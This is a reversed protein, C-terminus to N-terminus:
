AQYDCCDCDGHDVTCVDGVICMVIVMVMVVPPLRSPCVPPLAQLAALLTNLNAGQENMDVGAPGFVPAATEAASQQSFAPGSSPGVSGVDGSVGTLAAIKESCAADVAKATDIASMQAGILANLQDMVERRRLIETELAARHNKLMTVATEVEADAVDDLPLQMPPAEVEELTVVVNLLAELVAPVRPTPDQM